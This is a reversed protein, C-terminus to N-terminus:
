AMLADRAEEDREKLFSEKAAYFSVTAAAAAVGFTALIDSLKSITTGDGTAVVVTRILEFVTMIGALVASFQLLLSRPIGGPPDPTVLWLSVSVCLRCGTAWNM